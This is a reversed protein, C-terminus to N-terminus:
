RCVVLENVRAFNEMLDTLRLDLDDKKDPNNCKLKEGEAKLKKLSDNLIIGGRELDNHKRLM